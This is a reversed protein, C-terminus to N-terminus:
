GCATANWPAYGYAPSRWAQSSSRNWPSGNSAPPTFVPPPQTARGLAEMRAIAEDFADRPAVRAIVTSVYDHAQNHYEFRAIIESVRSEQAQFLEVVATVTDHIDETIESGSGLSEDLLPGMGVVSPLSGIGATGSDYDFERASSSVLVMSVSCALSSLETGDLLTPIGPYTASLPLGWTSRGLDNCGADDNQDPAEHLCEPVCGPVFSAWSRSRSIGAAVADKDLEVGEFREPFLDPLTLTSFTSPLIGCAILDMEWAWDGCEFSTGICDDRNDPLCEIQIPPPRRAKFAISVVVNVIDTWPPNAVDTRAAAISAFIQQEITSTSRTFARHVFASNPWLSTDDHAPKFLFQTVLDQSLCHCEHTVASGCQDITPDPIVESSVSSEMAPAPNLTEWAVMLWLGVVPNPATAEASPPISEAAIIAFIKREIPCIHGKFIWPLVGSSVWLCADSIILDKAECVHQDIPRSCIAKRTVFRSISEDALVPKLGEWALMLRHGVISSTAPAAAVPPISETVISAFTKREIPCIHGKFMWPLLGSSAWLCADSIILNMAECAHEDIPRSPIAKRTIIQQIGSESTFVRPTQKIKLLPKINSKMVRRFNECFRRAVEIARPSLIMGAGVLCIRSDFVVLLSALRVVQSLRAYAPQKRADQSSFGQRHVGAPVLSPAWYGPIIAYPLRIPEYRALAM